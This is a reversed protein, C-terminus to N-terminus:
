KILIHAKSQMLSAQTRPQLYVTNKPIGDTWKLEKIGLPFSRTERRISESLKAFPHCIYRRILIDFVNDTQDALFPQINSVKEFPFNIKSKFISWEEVSCVKSYPFNMLVAPVLMRFKM